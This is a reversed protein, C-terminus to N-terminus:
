QVEEPDLFADLVGQIESEDDLPWVAGELEPSTPTGDLQWADTASVAILGTGTAGPDDEIEFLWLGQLPNPIITDTLPTDDGVVKQARAHADDYDPLTPM